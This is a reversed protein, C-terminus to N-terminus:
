VLDTSASTWLSKTFSGLSLQYKQKNTSLTLYCSTSFKFTRNCIKGGFNFRQSKLWLIEFYLCVFYLNKKNFFSFINMISLFTLNSPLSCFSLYSPHPSLGTSESNGKQHVPPISCLLTKLELTRSRSDFRPEM